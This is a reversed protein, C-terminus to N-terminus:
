TGEREAAPRPPPGPTAPYPVFGHGGLLLEPGEGIRCEDYDTVIVPESM